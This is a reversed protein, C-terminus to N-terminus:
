REHVMVYGKMSWTQKGSLASSTSRRLYYDKARRKTREKKNKESSTDSGSSTSLSPAMNFSEAVQRATEPEVRGVTYKEIPGVVLRNNVFSEAVQSVM